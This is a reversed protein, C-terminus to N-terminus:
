AAQPLLQTVHEALFDIFLRLKAQQYQRDQYVAYIGASGCDYESLLPLLRGCRIDESVMFDALVGIGADQLLFARVGDASNCKIHGKLQVSHQQNDRTCILHHPTPLATFILSEHASLDAPTQPRGHREIYAPSACLIRPADGLKRAILASDHLWGVRICLDIGEKAMDLLNNDLVLEINVDRHQCLYQAVLPVIIQNGPSVPASIKLSGSPNKQLVGLRQTVQEFEEVIRACSHFYTQGAETLSLSRTSRNLLRVGMNKELLGIHRSVASKAMGLKRAAASFSNTDVVHFFIMMRKLDDM